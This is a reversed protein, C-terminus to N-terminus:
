RTTPCGMRWCDTTESRWSCIAYNCPNLNPSNPPWFDPKLFKCCHEELYALTVKPTHSCAGGQQFIYDGNSLQEMEPLLQSLIENCYYASNIKAGLTFFMEWIIIFVAGILMLITVLLAIFCLMGNQIHHFTLPFQSWLMILIEWPLSLWQLVFVLMLFFLYIWFLLVLLILRSDM